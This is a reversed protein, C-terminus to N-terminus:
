EWILNSESEFTAHNHCPCGTGCECKSGEDTANCKDHSCSGALIPTSDFEIEEVEPKVYNRKMNTM